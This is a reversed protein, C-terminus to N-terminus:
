RFRNYAGPNFSSESNLTNLASYNTTVKFTATALKTKKYVNVIVSIRVATVPVNVSVNNYKPLQNTNINQRLTIHNHKLCDDNRRNLTLAPTQFTNRLNCSQFVYIIRLANINKKTRSSNSCSNIRSFTQFIAGQLFTKKETQISSFFNEM